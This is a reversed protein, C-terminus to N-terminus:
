FEEETDEKPKPKHHAVKKSTPEEHYDSASGEDDLDQGEIPKGPKRGIVFGIVLAFILIAVILLVLAGVEGASNLTTTNVKNSVKVEIPETTTYGLNNQAQVEITHVGDPYDKTNWDYTWAGGGQADKWVGGDIRVKVSTVPTDSVATGSIKITGSVKASKAPKLVTLTMANEGYAISDSVV